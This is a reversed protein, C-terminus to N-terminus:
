FVIGEFLKELILKMKKGVDIETDPLVSELRENLEPYLKFCESFFKKIYERADAPEMADYAARVFELSGTTVEREGIMDKEFCAWFYDYDSEAIQKKIDVDIRSLTEPELNPSAVSIIRVVEHEYSFSKDRQWQCRDKFFSQLQFSRDSNNDLRLREQGKPGVKVIRQWVFEAYTGFSNEVIVFVNVARLFDELFQMTQSITKAEKKWIEEKEVETILQDLQLRAFKFPTASSPWLAHQRVYEDHELVAELIESLVVSQRVMQHVVYGGEKELLSHSTATVLHDFEVIIKEPDFGLKKLGDIGARIKEFREKMEKERQSVMEEQRTKSFKRDRWAQIALIDSRAKPNFIELGGVPPQEFSQEKDSM